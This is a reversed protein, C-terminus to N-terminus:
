GCSSGTTTGTVRVHFVEGGELTYRWRHPGHTGRWAAANGDYEPVPSVDVVRQSGRESMVAGRRGNGRDELGLGARDFFGFGHIDGSPFCM